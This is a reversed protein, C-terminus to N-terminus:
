KLERVWKKQVALFAGLFGLITGLFLLIGYLEWWDSRPLDFWAQLGAWEQAAFVVGHRLLELFFLVPLAGLLGQLIGEVLYPGKQMWGPAGMRAMLLLDERRAWLALTLTNSVIFLAALFVLSGLGVGGWRVLRSINSVTEWEGKGYDVDEVRPDSKLTGALDDLKGSVDQRLVVTFSDTLPNEDLADLMRDIEPDKRFEQLAEEKTVLRVSAVRPDGLLLNQIRQHDTKDATATLFVAMEFKERATGLAREFTKSIGLFVSLQLLTSAVIVIVAASLGKARLVQALGERLVYFLRSPNM